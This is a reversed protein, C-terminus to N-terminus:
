VAKIMPPMTMAVAPKAVPNVTAAVLPDFSVSLGDARYSLRFPAGTVNYFHFGDRRRWRLGPGSLRFRVIPDRVVNNRWLAGLDVSTLPLYNLPFPSSVTDPALRIDVTQGSRSQVTLSIPDLRYATTVLKGAATPPLDLSLAIPTSSEPVPIWTDAPLNQRGADSYGIALRSTRPRLLFTDLQPTSPAFGNYLANWIQPVDVIPNRGDIAQWEFVVYDIPPAANAIKQGSMGDLYSTYSMYGQTGFLPVLQFNGRSGFSLDIPFVMTRSGNITPLFSNISSGSFAGDAAQDLEAKLQRPHILKATIQLTSAPSWWWESRITSTEDAQLAFLSFAAFVIALIAPRVANRRVQALLFGFVLIIFTFFIRTHPSDARVWGHKLAVWALTAVMGASVWSIWEAAFGVVLLVAIAALLVAIKWGTNWEGPFSMTASYGSAMELSGRTYGILDTLSPHYILYSVPGSVLTASLAATEMRSVSVRDAIRGAIYWGLLLMAVIYSNFKVLFTLGTLVPLAALVGISSGPKRILITYAALLAAILLYDWYIVYLKNSLILACTLFVAAASQGSEWMFGLFYLLLSLLGVRAAFSVYVNNNVYEPVALYGLPGYTLVIDRGFIEPGHAFRNLAYGWSADLGPAISQYAVSFLLLAAYFLLGYFALNKWITKLLKNM